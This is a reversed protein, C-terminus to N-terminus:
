AQGARVLAPLVEGLRGRVVEDALHDLPTPEDNAIILAAGHEKALAPLGAAPHVQLSTGAALFLDADASSRVAKALDHEDLGEGFFVVTPKLIGGCSRCSPDPNGEEVRQMAEDIPRREDCAVCQTHRLSGHIEVLHEASTRAKAHLGDVNQTVLLSLRGQAELDVLALHSTNPERRWVAHERRMQWALQRVEPDTLYPAITSLQEAKPNTTWVGQPGRYDPIGSETSVGAGTLVVIRRADAVLSAAKQLGAEM